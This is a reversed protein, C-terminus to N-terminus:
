QIIRYKNSTTECDKTFTKDDRTLPKTAGNM